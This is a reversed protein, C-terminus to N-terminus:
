RRSELCIARWARLGDSGPLPLMNYMGVILNAAAFVPWIGWSVSALVLNIAPGALATCFEEIPRGQQRVIYVGRWAVGFRKVQLGYRRAVLVHALEHLAIALLGASLLWPSAIAGAVVLAVAALRVLMRRSQGVSSAKSPQHM